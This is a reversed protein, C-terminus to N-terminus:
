PNLTDQHISFAAAVLGPSAAERLGCVREYLAESGRDPEILAKCFVIDLAGDRM